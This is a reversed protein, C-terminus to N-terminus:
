VPFCNIRCCFSFLFSFLAMSASKKDDINNRGVKASSFTDAKETGVPYHDGQELLTLYNALWLYPLTGMPTKSACLPLALCPGIFISTLFLFGNTEGKKNVPNSKHSQWLPHKICTIKIRQTSLCRRVITTGTSVPHELSVIANSTLYWCKQAQKQPQKMNITKKRKCIANCWPTM